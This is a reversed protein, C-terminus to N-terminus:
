SHKVTSWAFTKIYKPLPTRGDSVSLSRSNRLLYGGQSSCEWVEKGLILGRAFVSVDSHVQVVEILVLLLVFTGIARKLLYIEKHVM